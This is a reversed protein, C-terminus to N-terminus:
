ESENEFNQSCSSMFFHSAMMNSVRECDLDRFLLKCIIASLLNGCGFYSILAMIVLYPKVFVHMLMM